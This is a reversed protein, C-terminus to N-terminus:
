EGEPKEAVDQVIAATDTDEQGEQSDTDRGTEEPSEQNTAPTDTITAKGAKSATSKAKGKNAKGAQAKSESMDRAPAVDEVPVFGSKKYLLRYAKESVRIRYGKANVYERVM